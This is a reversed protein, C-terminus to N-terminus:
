RRGRKKLAIEVLDNPGLDVVPCLINLKNVVEEREVFRGYIKLINEENLYREEIFLLPNLSIIYLNAGKKRM